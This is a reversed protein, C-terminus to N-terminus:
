SFYHHSGWQGKFLRRGPESKDFSVILVIREIALLSNRGTGDELLLDLRLVVMM